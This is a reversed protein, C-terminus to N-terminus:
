ASEKGSDWRVDGWRLDVGPLSDLRLTKKDDDIQVVVGRAGTMTIGRDGLEIEGRTFDPGGVRTSVVREVLRDLEWELMDAPMRASLAFENTIAVCFCLNDSAREVTIMQAHLETDERVWLRSGEPLKPTVYEKVTEAFDM